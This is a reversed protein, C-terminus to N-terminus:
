KRTLLTYSQILPNTKASPRCHVRHGNKMMVSANLGERVAAGIQRNIRAGNSAGSAERYLGLHNQKIHEFVQATVHEDWSEDDSLKEVFSNVNAMLDIEAIASSPSQSSHAASHKNLYELVALKALHGVAAGRTDALKKLKLFDNSELSIAFTERKIKQPM